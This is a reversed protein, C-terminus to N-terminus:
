NQTPFIGTTAIIYNLALFPAVNTHTAVAGLTGGGAASVSSSLFPKVATTDTTYSFDDTGSADAALTNNQPATSNAQQSTAQIPHNHAPMQAETLAVTETGTSLGVAWNVTGGGSAIGAGVPVRGRMDPVKFTTSGDGGYTTGILAFLAEYESINLAQGNCFVYGVPAYQGAFITIQGVYPQSM